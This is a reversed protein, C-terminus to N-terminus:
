DCVRSPLCGGDEGTHWKSRRAKLSGQSGEDSVDDAVRWKVRTEQKRLGESVPLRLAIALAVCLRGVSCLAPLMRSM